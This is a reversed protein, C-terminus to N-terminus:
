SERGFLKAVADSDLWLKLGSLLNSVDTQTFGFDPRDIVIYVGLNDFDNSADLPNTVLAKKDVRAMSRTRAGSRQHSITLTLTEDAKSYIAKSGDQLVKALIHTDTSIEIEQPDAFM